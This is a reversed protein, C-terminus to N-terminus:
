HGIWKIVSVPCSEHHSTSVISSQLMPNASFMYLVVPCEKWTYGVVAAISSPRDEQFELLRLRKQQTM